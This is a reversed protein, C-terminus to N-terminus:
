YSVRLGPGPFAECEELFGLLTLHILLTETDQEVILRVKHYSTHHM